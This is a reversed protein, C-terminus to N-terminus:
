QQKLHSFKQVDRKDALTWRSWFMLFIKTLNVKEIECNSVISVLYKSDGKSKYSYIAIWLVIIHHRNSLFTCWLFRKCYSSGSICYQISYLSWQRNGEHSFICSCWWWRPFYVRTHRHLWSQDMLLIYKFHMCMQWPKQAISFSSECCFVQKAVYYHWSYVNICRKYTWSKFFSIISKPEKAKKVTDIASDFPHPASLYYLSVHTLTILWM